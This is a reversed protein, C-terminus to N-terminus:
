NVPYSLDDETGFVQDSGASLIQFKRGGIPLGDQNKRATVTMDQGFGRVTQEAAFGSGTKSFYVLPMGWADSLEVRGKRSLLPLVEGNDDGDTNTLQDGLDSLDMGSARSQSLFAVLSEIGTNVGNDSKFKYKGDPDVFNDPPYYGRKRMFTECGTALRSMNVQTAAEDASEGSSLLDPLFAVTLLGIISVVILLEILTFGSFRSRPLPQKM